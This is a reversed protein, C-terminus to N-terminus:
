SRWHVAASKVCPLFNSGAVSPRVSSPIKARGTTQSAAREMKEGELFHM